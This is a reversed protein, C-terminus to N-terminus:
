LNIVVNHCEEAILEAFKKEFLVQFDGTGGEKM